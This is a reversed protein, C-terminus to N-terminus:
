KGLVEAYYYCHEGDAGGGDDDDDVELVFLRSDVEPKTYDFVSFIVTTGRTYWRPDDELDITEWATEHSLEQIFWAELVKATIQPKQDFYYYAKDCCGAPKPDVVDDMADNGSQNGHEDIQKELRVIGYRKLLIDIQRIIEMHGPTDAYPAFSSDKLQTYIEERVSDKDFLTEARQSADEAVDTGSMRNGHNELQCATTTLEEVCDVERENQKDNVQERSLTHAAIAKRQKRILKREVM